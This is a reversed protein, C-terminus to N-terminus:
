ASVCGIDGLLEPNMVLRQPSPHLEAPLLELCPERSAPIPRPSPATSVHGRARAPSRTGSFALAEGCGDTVHPRAPEDGPRLRCLELLLDFSRM